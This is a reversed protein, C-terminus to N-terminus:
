KLSRLAHLFGYAFANSQMAQMAGVQGPLFAAQLMLASSEDRTFLMLTEEHNYRIREAKITVTKFQLALKSVVETVPKLVTNCPVDLKVIGYHDLCNWVDDHIELITIPEFDFTYLVVRKM